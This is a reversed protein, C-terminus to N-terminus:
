NFKSSVTFSHLLLLISLISHKPCWSTEEWATSEETSGWQLIPGIICYNAASVDAHEVCYKVHINEKFRARSNLQSFNGWQPSAHDHFPFLQFIFLQNGQYKFTDNHFHSIYQLFGYVLYHIHFFTKALMWASPIYAWYLSFPYMLLLYIRLLTITKLKYLSEAIGELSHNFYLGIHDHSLDLPLFNGVIM